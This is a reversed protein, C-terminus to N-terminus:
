HGVGRRTATRIRGLCFTDREASTQRGFRAATDRTSLPRRARRV